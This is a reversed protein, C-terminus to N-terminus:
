AVTGLNYIYGYKAKPEEPVEPVEDKVVDEVFDINELCKFEFDSMQFDTLKAFEQNLLEFNWDSFESVKNDALRFPKIQKDDLDDAIM